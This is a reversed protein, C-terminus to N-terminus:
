RYVGGKNFHNEYYDMKGDSHNGRLIKIGGPWYGDAHLAGRLEANESAAKREKRFKVLEQVVDIPTDIQERHQLTPPHIPQSNPMMTKESPASNPLYSETDTSALSCEMDNDFFTFDNEAASWFAESDADGTSSKTRNAFRSAPFNHPFGPLARPAMELAILRLSFIEQATHHNRKPYREGRKRTPDIELGAELDALKAESACDKFFQVLADVVRSTSDYCPVDTLTLIRLKPLMGPILGRPKDLRSSRLEQRQEEILLRQADKNEGSRRAQRNESEVGRPGESNNFGNMAQAVACSGTNLLVSGEEEVSDGHELAEPAAFDSGRRAEPESEEESLSPKDGSPPSIYIHTSNRPLEYRPEAEQTDLEYLPPPADLEFVAAGLESSVPGNVVHIANRANLECAAIPASEDRLPADETVVSHHLRLSTLDRAYESLVPILKEAGPLTIHRVEFPSLAPSAESAPGLVSQEVSGADLVRLKKSRVLATLGEVTLNNDAIYLHTIGSHPFDEYPLRSVVSSTLRRVLREDYSEDRFEDLVKFDPPVFGLHWDEVALNSSAHLRGNPSASEDDETQFCSSLLTLVSHDTLYNGQVDLSRVRVGIAQALIEVDSDRLRVRRLKLIQLLPLYQLKSLVNKDRAALTNSLDLFALQPFHNLAEALGQATTNQCHGGILLRLVFTPNKRDAWPQRENIYSRLAM